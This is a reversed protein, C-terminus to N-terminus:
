HKGPRSPEVGLGFQAAAEAAAAAIVKPVMLARRFAIALPFLIAAAAIAPGFPIRGLVFIAIAALGIAAFRWVAFNSHWGISTQWDQELLLIPVKVLGPPLIIQLDYPVYGDGRAVILGRRLLTSRLAAVMKEAAPIAAGGAPILAIGGSLASTAWAPADKTATAFSSTVRWRAWSRVLPGAIWLATLLIRQGFGHPRALPARFAATGACFLTIALGVIGLAAYFVNFLGLAVLVLAVAIWQFTLPAELALPLLSGPYITQFLGRGFAGYYVRPGTTFWDALSASGGYLGSRVGGYEPYKRFLLGEGRGYGAQQRLYAGITARRRHIVTAGPAYALSVGRDRLSWSFDVDDGATEFAPDFPDATDLKSKDLAMSCGCLQELQDAGTRVERPEGPAAAIASIVASPDLPPFNQGGVAPSGTRTLTEVLHYLWDSEAEADADIFAV